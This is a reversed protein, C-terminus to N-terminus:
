TQYSLNQSRNEYHYFFRIMASIKELFLFKRTNKKENKVKRVKKIELFYKFLKVV